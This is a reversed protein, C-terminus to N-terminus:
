NLQQQCQKNNDQNRGFGLSSLNGRSSQKNYKGSHGIDSMKCYRDSRRITQSLAKADEGTPPWGKRSRQREIREVTKIRSPKEVIGEDWSSLDDWEGSQDHWNREMTSIM